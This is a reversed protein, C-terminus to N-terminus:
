RRDPSGVPTMGLSPQPTGEPAGATKTAAGARFAALQGQRALDIAEAFIRAAEQPAHFGYSNEACIFDLRWQAKRHLTLAEALAEGSAGAQRAATVASILDTVAQTAKDRLDKHRHQIIEVRSRLEEEPYAHCTQCARNINLLPSRIHHDSIKIAGQRTYPMHCDACSVGSRAHVGQSWLEFEPHQAKLVATGTDPHTWDKWRADDYYAEIQEVKLGKSWPYTVLKKDGAFYYEVHCQACAMSRMEQRTALANPDYPAKRDGKRWREVSPLHPVPDDSGALAAIGNIFGPRTVRLRMSDPDHCDVCSVAHDVLPRADAFTTGCVQEFGKMIAARRNSAPAGAEVGKKYYAPIISAHCHLCSGPQKFQKVRETMDQDSLMFAHGRAVRYDVSFAYGKFITKWRPDKELYSESEGGALTKKLPSPDATRLYGDYQAPFSKGWVAPDTTEESFPALILATQKAEDKRQNINRLLALAAITAAVAAVAVVVYVLVSGRRRSPCTPAQATHM